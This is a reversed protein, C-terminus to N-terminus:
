KPIRRTPLVAAVDPASAARIELIMAEEEPSVFLFGHCDADEQLLLDGDGMAFLSVNGRLMRLNHAVLAIGVMFNVKALGTVQFFGREVNETTPNKMNGFAGEVYTRANNRTKWKPSGWYHEQEVKPQADRGTTVTRQTCCAPAATPDPPEVIVPLGNLQAVEVTGERM